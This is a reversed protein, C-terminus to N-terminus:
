AAGEEIGEAARLLVRRVAELHKADEREAAIEAGYAERDIVGEIAARLIQQLDSAAIAELEYVQEGYKQVYKRRNASKPKAILNPPINREQIQEWTLAVRVAHVNDIDFDDRMSRAFSEGIELGDPDHDSVLLLILKDKGSARYREAIENRPSLSCFGRGITLPITYESAVPKLIPLVTNKEGIIEIHHPQSQMLDRWYRRMLNDLESRQYSRVDPHTPWCFTPRTEDIIKHMPIIGAVRARAVLEVLAKYSALDNQYTSGPKGAHKLPADNFLGYHLRRVSQPGPTDALLRQVAKLLPMKAASIRCRVKAGTIRMPTIGVAANARRYNNLALHSDEANIDVLEERLKEARSKDRQRNHERLLRIFADLDDSRRVKLRRVPIMNMGALKAAAFRRHGSIIWGDADVIIPELLGNRRISEALKVIEPDNPDVPRYLRDNEPSPRVGNIPVL